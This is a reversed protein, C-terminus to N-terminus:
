LLSCLLASCVRTETSGTQSSLHIHLDAFTHKRLVIVRIQALTFSM